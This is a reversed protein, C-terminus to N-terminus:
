GLHKDSLKLCSADARIHYSDISNEREQVAAMMLTADKLSRDLWTEKIRMVEIYCDSAALQRGIREKAEENVCEAWSRQRCHPFADKESSPDYLVDDMGIGPTDGAGDPDRHKLAIGGSYEACPLDRVSLDFLM